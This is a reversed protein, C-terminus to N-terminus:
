GARSRADARARGAIFFAGGLLAAGVGVGTLLAYM